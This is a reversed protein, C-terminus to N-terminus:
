RYLRTPNDVLVARAAAADGCVELVFDLLAPIFWDREDASFGPVGTRDENRAGSQM